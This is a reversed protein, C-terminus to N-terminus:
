LSMFFLRSKKNQASFQLELLSQLLALLAGSPGVSFLSLQVSSNKIESSTQITYIALLLLGLQPLLDVPCCYFSVLDYYLFLLSLLTFNLCHSQLRFCCNEVALIGRKIGPVWIVGLGLEVERHRVPHILLLTHGTAQIKLFFMSQNGNGASCNM